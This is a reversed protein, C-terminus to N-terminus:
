PYNKVEVEVLNLMATVTVRIFVPASAASAYFQPVAGIFWWPVCETIEFCAYGFRQGGVCAGKEHIELQFCIVFLARESSFVFRPWRM